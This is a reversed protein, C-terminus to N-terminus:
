IDVINKVVQAKGETSPPNTVKECSQRCQAEQHRSEEAQAQCQAERLAGAQTIRVFYRATFRKLLSDFSEHESAVVETV